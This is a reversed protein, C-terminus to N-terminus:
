KGDKALHSLRSVMEMRERFKIDEKKLKKNQRKISLKTDIPAPVDYFNGNPSKFKKNKMIKNADNSSLYDIGYRKGTVGKIIRSEGGGRIYRFDQATDPHLARMINSERTIVHPTMHAGLLSRTQKDGYLLKNIGGTVKDGAMGETGTLRFKSKNRGLRVAERAEDIEHRKIIARPVGISKAMAKNGTPIYIKKNLPLTLPGMYTSLASGPHRMVNKFKSASPPVEKLKWGKQSLVEMLKKNGKEVGRYISLDSKIAKTEKLAKWAAPSLKGWLRKPPMWAVKMMIPCKM